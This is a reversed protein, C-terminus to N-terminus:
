FLKSRKVLYTIIASFLVIVIYFVFTNNGLLGRLGPIMGDIKLILYYHILYVGMTLDSAFKIYKPPSFNYKMSGVLLLVASLFISIKAYEPVAVGEFVMNLRNPLYAWEYAAVAAIITAFLLLTKVNVYKVIRDRHFYIIIGSFVYPLFNFPSYYSLVAGIHKTNPFYIEALPFRYIIFLLNLLLLLYQISMFLKHNIFRKAALLLETVVTLGSLIAIFYIHHKGGRLLYEWDTLNEWRIGNPDLVAITFLVWFLYTILLHKWRKSFYREKSQRNVVYLYIGILMFMPVGLLFINFYLIDVITTRFTEIKDQEFVDTIGMAKSHWAVIALCFFVRLYDFTGIFNPNTKYGDKM